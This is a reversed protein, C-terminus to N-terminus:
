VPEKKFSNHMFVFTATKKRVCHIYLEQCWSTSQELLTFCNNNHGWGTYPLPLLRQKQGDMAYMSFLKLVSLGTTGLNPLFGLSRAWQAVLAPGYKNQKNITKSTQTRLMRRIQITTSQRMPVFIRRRSSVTRCLTRAGPCGGRESDVVCLHSAV